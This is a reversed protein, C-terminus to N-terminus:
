EDNRLENTIAKMTETKIRILDAKAELFGNALSAKYWDVYNMFVEFSVLNEPDTTQDDLFTQEYVSVVNGNLKDTFTAGGSTVGCLVSAWRVLRKAGGTVLVKSVAGQWSKPIRRHIFDIIRQHGIGTVSSLKMLRCAWMTATAIARRDRKITDVNELNLAETVSEIILKTIAQDNKRLGKIFAQGFLSPNGNFSSNVLQAIQFTSTEPVLHNEKFVRVFNVQNLSKSLDDTLQENMVENSNSNTSEEFRSAVELFVRTIEDNITRVLVNSEVQKTSKELQVIFNKERKTLDEVVDTLSAVQDSGRRFSEEVKSTLGNIVLQGCTAQFYCLALLLVLQGRIM